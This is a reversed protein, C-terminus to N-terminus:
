ALARAYAADRDARIDALVAEVADVGREEVTALNVEAVREHLPKRVPRALLEALNTSALDVFGTGEEGRRLESLVSLRVCQITPDPSRRLFPVLRAPSELDAAADPHFEALAMPPSSGHAAAHRERLRAVFRAMARASVPLRPLVVLGVAVHARAAHAEIAVLAAEEAEPEDADLVVRVEVEGQARARAAWPCFGFAEVVEVEYRAYIRRAERELATARAADLPAATM